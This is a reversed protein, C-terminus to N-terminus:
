KSFRAAVVVSRTNGRFEGFALGVGVKRIEKSLLNERTSPNLLWARVVAEAQPRKTSRWFRNESLGKGLAPTALTDLRMMLRASARAGKRLKATVRLNPLDRASREANIAVVLDRPTIMPNSAAPSQVALALLIALAVTSGILRM